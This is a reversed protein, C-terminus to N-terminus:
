NAYGYVLIVLTVVSITNSKLDTHYFRILVDQCTKIYNSYSLYRLSYFKWSYFLMGEAYPMTKHEAM